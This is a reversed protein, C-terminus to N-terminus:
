WYRFIYINGFGEGPTYYGSYSMLEEFNAPRVCNESKKYVLQRALARPDPAAGM